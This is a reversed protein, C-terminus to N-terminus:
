INLFSNELIGGRNAWQQTHQGAGAECRASNNSVGTEPAVCQVCKQLCELALNLKLDPFNCCM